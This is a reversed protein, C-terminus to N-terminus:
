LNAVHGEKCGQQLLYFLREVQAGEEDSVVIAQYRRGWVKERWAHIRGVERALKSNLYGVFRALQEADRTWVLLHYHNSLFVFGCISMGYLRQARGLVGLTIERLEQSPRLLFRSQIARSTVEM